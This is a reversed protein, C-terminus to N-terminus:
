AVNKFFRHRGIRATFEADKIWEPAPISVSYYHTANNTPDPGANLTAAQVYGRCMILTVDDDPLRFMEAFNPDDVNWCSFQGYRSGKAHMACCEALTKGSYWKGARHRNAIVWAVARMGQEGEGRAEAWCTRAAIEIDFSV